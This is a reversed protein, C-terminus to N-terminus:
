VTSWPAFSSATIPRDPDVVFGYATGSMFAAWASFTSPPGLIRDCAALAALDGYPDGPGPHIPLGEFAGRTKHESSCIVFTVTRDPFAAIAARMFNAYQEDDYYYRGGEWQKFDGQRVHLGIVLNAHRRAAAVARRGADLHVADLALVERVVDAHANLAASDRLGWGSLLVRRRGALATRTEDSALDIDRASAALHPLPARALLRATARALLRSGPRAAPAGARRVPFRCLPDGRLAPLAGAHTFGPHAVTAGTAAAHAVLHAFRFLQNGLGGVTDTVLLFRPQAAADQAAKRTRV